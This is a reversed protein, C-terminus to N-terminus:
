VVNKQARYQAWKFCGAVVLLAGAATYFIAPGHAGGVNYALSKVWGWRGTFPPEPPTLWEMVGLLIFCGGLGWSAAAKEKATFPTRWHPHDPEGRNLKM